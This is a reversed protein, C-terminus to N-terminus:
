FFEHMEEKYYFIMILGLVILATITLRTEPLWLAPHYFALDWHYIVHSAVALSCSFCVWYIVLALNYIINM